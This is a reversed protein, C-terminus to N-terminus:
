SSFTPVTSDNKFANFVQEAENMNWKVADGDSATPYNANAIPVTITKGKGSQVDKMAFFMSGLDTLGTNNDVTLLSLGSDLTPYLTFPNLLTGASTAKHSLASLFQQQHKMRALDQSAEQHRERVFALSQAGNLTQCGAKLNAGSAKDVIAKDLCMDIGGLDNVVNVFGSFGIEAYHDIHIGTNYELTQVMLTGGGEAYAANIKHKASSHKVGKSDTWAPITVYSDRPISMLTNGNSGSHLIMMSDTRAGTDYGTHLAQQQAKSLGERSDSGIILWNTGKGAAPRGAYDVLVNSHNLKSDAWFYTGVSVVLLVLVLTFLSFRIKRSRSWKRRGPGTGAGNGGGPGGPGSPRTGRGPGRPDLEPPLGGAPSGQQPVPRGGVQQGSRRGAGPGRPNLEPPLPQRGQDYGGQGQGRSGQGGQGYGSQGYGSQGQGGQGPRSTRTEWGSIDGGGANRRASSGNDWGDHTTM